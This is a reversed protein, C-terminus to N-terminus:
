FKYSCSIFAGIGISSNPFTLGQISNSGVRFIYREKLNISASIGGTLKGYGGFGLHATLIYKNKLYFNSEVFVYPKYYANFLHRFGNCLEFVSNFRIKHFIIFSVPLNTSNKARDLNTSNENISDLSIANLTSDSLEFIDDVKVGSFSFSSDTTYNLTNNNWKIFGLNAISVIFRSKGLKSTYPTEIFFETSFGNGNIDTFKTSATDSVSFQANTTLKIYSVDPATYLSSNNTNLRFFNQGKLYSVSMGMIAKTTDVGDILFGFKLEQYSYNNIQSNGLNAFDGVFQRNGYFALKYFDDTISANFFQRHNLGIIFRYKSSDKGFFSILSNNFFGGLKNIGKARSLQDDKLTKDIYGGNYLRYLFKNSIFDSNLDFESGLNISKKNSSYYLFDNGFQSFGSISLFLLFYVFYLKM